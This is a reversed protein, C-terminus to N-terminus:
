FTYSWKEFLKKAEGLLVLWTDAVVKTRGATV